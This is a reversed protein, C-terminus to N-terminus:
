ASSSAKNNFEITTLWSSEDLAHEVRTIIYDQNDLSLRSGAFVLQGPM